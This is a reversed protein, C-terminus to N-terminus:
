RSGGQASLDLLAPVPKAFGERRAVLDLHPSAWDELLAPGGNWRERRDLEKLYARCARCGSIVYGADEAEAQLRYLDKTDEVGCLPCRLKAFSWSGGCFHCTLRRHGGEVVDVFGPPAGCFACVGRGWDVQTFHPAASEFWAELVPRLTAYALFTVADSDLGSAAEVRGDGIGDRRPLLADPGVAGADWAAALRQLAAARTGDLAAVDEMAAGLLDEVDAVQLPPPAEAALPLGRAWSERCRQASWTLRQRPAKWQSWRELLRGYPALSPALVRRRMLLERWAERLDSM